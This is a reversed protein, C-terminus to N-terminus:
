SVDQALNAHKIINFSVAGRKTVKSYLIELEERRFISMRSNGYSHFPERRKSEWRGLLPGPVFHSEKRGALRM